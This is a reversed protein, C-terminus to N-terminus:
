IIWERDSYKNAMKEWFGDSWDMTVSLEWEEPLNTLVASIMKSGNGRIPSNIEFFDLIKYDVHYIIEIGIATPHEMTTIPKKDNTGKIESSAAIIENTIKVFNIFDLNFLRVAIDIINKHLEKVKSIAWIKKNETAFESFIKEFDKRKIFM